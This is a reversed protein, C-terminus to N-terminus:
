KMGQFDLEIMGCIHRLLLVDFISGGTAIFHALNINVVIYGYM